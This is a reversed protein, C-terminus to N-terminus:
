NGHFPEQMRKRSLEKYKGGLELEELWKTKTEEREDMKRKSGRVNKSKKNVAKM